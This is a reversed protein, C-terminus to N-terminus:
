IALDIVQVNGVKTLTEGSLIIKSGRIGSGIIVHKLTPIKEDILIPWDSPLGIPAIGGYEMSTLETAEDMPAFSLKRADLHKKITKNVDARDTALVVIAAYWTREARKAKVIVCNASVDLGIDYADCFAETDALEANIEAVQLEKSIGCLASAEYLKEAVLEPHDAVLEFDLKGYKM